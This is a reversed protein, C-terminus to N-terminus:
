KRLSLIRVNVSSERNLFPMKFASGIYDIYSVNKIKNM